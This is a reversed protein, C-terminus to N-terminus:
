ELFETKDIKAVSAANTITVARAGANTRVGFGVNSGGYGAMNGGMPLTRISPVQSSEVQSAWSQIRQMEKGKAQQSRM